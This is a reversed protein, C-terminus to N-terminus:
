HRGVCHVNYNVTILYEVVDNKITFQLKCSVKPIATAEVVFSSPLNLLSSPSPSGVAKLITKSPERFGPPPQPLAELVM